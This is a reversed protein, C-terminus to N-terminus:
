GDLKKNINPFMELVNGDAGQKVSGTVLTITLLLSTGYDTASYSSM